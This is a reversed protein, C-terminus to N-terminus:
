ASSIEKRYDFSNKLTLTNVYHPDLQRLKVNFMNRFKQYTISFKEVNPHPVAISHISSSMFM